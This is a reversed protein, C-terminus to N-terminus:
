RKIKSIKKELRIKRKRVRQIYTYVYVCMNYTHTYIHADVCVRARAHTDVCVRASAHTHAHTCM